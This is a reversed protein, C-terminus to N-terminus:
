CTNIYREDDVTQIVTEERLDIENCEFEKGRKMSICYM